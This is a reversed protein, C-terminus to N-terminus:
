PIVKAKAVHRNVVDAPIGIWERHDSHHCHFQLDEYEAIEEEPLDLEIASFPGQEGEFMPDGFLTQDAFDHGRDHFFGNKLISEINATPTTHYIKM